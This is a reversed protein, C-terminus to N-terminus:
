CARSQEAAFLGAGFHSGTGLLLPGAVAVGFALRLCGSVGGRPGLAVNIVEVKPRPLGRRDCELLLDRRLAEEIDRLHPPHRTPRYCTRSVWRETRGFVPDADDPMAIRALRPAGACGARLVPIGAVAEEM